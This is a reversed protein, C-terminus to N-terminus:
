DYPLGDLLRVKTESADRLFGECWQVHVEMAFQLPFFTNLSPLRRNM